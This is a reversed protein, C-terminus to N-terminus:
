LWRVLSIIGYQIAAAVGWGVLLVLAGLAQRLAPRMASTEDSLLDIGRLLPLGFCILPILCLIGSVLPPVGPTWIVVGNLYFKVLPGVLVVAYWYTPFWLWLFHARAIGGFGRHRATSIERSKFGVIPAAVIVAACIAFEYWPEAQFLRSMFESDVYIGVYLVTALWFAWWLSIGCGGILGAIAARERAIGGAIFTGFTISVTEACLHYIWHTGYRLKIADLPLDSANFVVDRIATLLANSVALYYVLGVVPAIFLPWLPASSLPAVESGSLLPQNLASVPEPDQEAIIRRVSSFLEEISTNESPEKEGSTM